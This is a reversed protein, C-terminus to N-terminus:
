RLIIMKKTEEVKGNVKLQYLYIGSPQITGHADRGDWTEEVIENRTASGFYVRKVLQGHINYIDLEVNATQPLCFSIKVEGQVFPNPANQHLGYSIPVEPIDPDDPASIVVDVPGHIEPVGSLNWNEIWYWYKDGPVPDEIRDEFTYSHPESTTGYGSIFDSNLKIANEFDEEKNRYVNWGINDSESETRWYLRVTQEASVYTATFTSLEVPLTGSDTGFMVAIEGDKAGSYIPGGTGDYLYNVGATGDSNQIGVTCGDIPMDAGKSNYQLKINGSPYLIVQATFWKTASASTWPEYHDYTVVLNGGVTEYYLHPTGAPSYPKLDDWFLAIINVQDITNDPLEVNSWNSGWASPDSFSIWGDAGVWFKTYDVGFFNFTFGIDYGIADNPAYGDGSTLDGYVDTGTESIDIWSYTPHSPADTALSNAYYYGGTGAGGGGWDPDYATTIIDCDDSVGTTGSAVFTETDTSGPTADSPVDVRVLVTDKGLSAITEGTVVTISDLDYIGNTWSGSSATYTYTDSDAGKNEILVQYYYSTGREVSADASLKTVDVAYNPFEDVSIDDLYL